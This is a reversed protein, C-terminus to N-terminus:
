HIQAKASAGALPYSEPAATTGAVSNIGFVSSKAATPSITLNLAVLVQGTLIPTQNQGWVVCSIPSKGAVCSLTKNAGTLAPGATVSVATIDTAIYSLNFEIGVVPTASTANWTISSVCAAGRACSVNSPSISVQAIAQAYILCCFASGFFIKNM